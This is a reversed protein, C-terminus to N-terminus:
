ARRAPAAPATVEPFRAAWPELPLALATCLTSIARYWNVAVLIELRQADSYHKGLESWIADSLSTGECLADVARLLASEDPAFCADDPTGRVTAAVAAADLKAAAGFAAVHVGWEYECGYRACVRDILLERQRLTLGSKRGLIFAGLPRMAEMLPPHTALTRFLVLPAVGSGPPMWRLLAERLAPDAPEAPVPAIRPAPASM